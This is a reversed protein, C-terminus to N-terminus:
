TPLRKQGDKPIKISINYRQLKTYIYLAQCEEDEDSEFHQQNAPLNRM